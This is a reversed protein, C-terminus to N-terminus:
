NLWLELGELSWWKPTGTAERPAQDVPLVADKREEAGLDRFFQQARPQNFLSGSGLRAHACTRPQAKRTCLTSGWQSAAEAMRGQFLPFVPGQGGRPEVHLSVADMDVGGAPWVPLHQNM